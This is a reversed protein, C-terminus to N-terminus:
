LMQGPMSDDITFTAGTLSPAMVTGTSQGSLAIKILSDGPPLEWLELALDGEALPKVRLEFSHGTHKM